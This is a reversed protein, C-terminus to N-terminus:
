DEVVHSAFATRARSWAAADLQGGAGVVDAAAWAMALAHHTNDHAFLGQRGFHVFRPLTSAWDDVPSFSAEFGVRYVPYVNPVRRVEAHVPSTVPLGNRALVDVVVAAADSADATWWEDGIRCPIEACLVTTTTPDQRSDRYNKPESVRSMPVDAEPFYHADYPTWRRAALVIYVLLMARTELHRAADQVPGPARGLRAIAALPLTSFITGADFTQGNACSVTAGDVRNHLGTVEVGTCIEAGAERAADALVEAIQGFGRRPYFFVKREPQPRLVRRVLGATNRAGVRRRALEASLSAAPVGFLKEVYPEYFRSALTPGLTSRVTADFTDAPAHRRLPATLVDRALQASLLPPLRRVLDAPSPPFAVFRGAMRIRGNRVRRQLDGGLLARLTAMIPDPTTPHLRHSGHDVRLGDVEFSAALGGVHPQRELVLVQRGRAALRYAAGLGAPGAGLVVTDFSTM